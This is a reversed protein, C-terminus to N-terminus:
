IMKQERRIKNHFTKRIIVRMYSLSMMDFSFDMTLLKGGLFGWIRCFEKLGFSVRRKIYIILYGGLSFYGQHSSLPMQSFKLNLVKIVSKEATAHATGPPCLVCQATRRRCPTDATRCPRNWRRNSCSRNQRICLSSDSFHSQSCCTWSAASEQGAGRHCSRYTARSHRAQKGTTM